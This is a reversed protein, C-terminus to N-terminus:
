QPRAGRLQKEAEFWAERLPELVRIVDDLLNMNKTGLAEVLSQKAFAYLAYLNRALEPYHEPRLSSMLETLIDQCQGLLLGTRAWNQDEMFMKAGRIKQFLADYLMVVLEGPSATLVKTKLYEAHANM